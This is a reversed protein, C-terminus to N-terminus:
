KFCSVCSVCMMGWVWVETATGGVRGPDKAAGPCPSWLQSRWVAWVWVAWVAVLNQPRSSLALPPSPTPGMQLWRRPLQQVLPWAFLTSLARWRGKVEWRGPQAHPNQNRYLSAPLQALRSVTAQPSRQAAEGMRRQSGGCQRPFSPHQYVAPHHSPTTSDTATAPQWRM